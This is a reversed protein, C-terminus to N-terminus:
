ANQKREAALLLEDLRMLRRKLMEVHARAGSFEEDRAYEYIDRMDNLARMAERAASVHASQVPKAGEPVPMESTDHPAGNHGPM